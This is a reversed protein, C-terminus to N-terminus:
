CSTGGLPSQLWQEWFDWTVPKFRIKLCYTTGSQKTHTIYLKKKKTLERIEENVCAPFQAWEPQWTNPKESDWTLKQGRRKVRSYSNTTIVHCKTSQFISHTTSSLEIFKNTTKAPCRPLNHFISHQQNKM